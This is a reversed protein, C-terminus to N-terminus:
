RYHIWDKTAKKAEPCGQAIGLLVASVILITIIRAVVRRQHERHPDKPMPAREFM